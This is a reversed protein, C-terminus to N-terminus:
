LIKDINWGGDKIFGLFIPDPTKDAMEEKLLRM